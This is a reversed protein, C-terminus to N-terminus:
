QVQEVTAFYPAPNTDDKILSELQGKFNISFRVKGKLDTSLNDNSNQILHDLTGCWNTGWDQNLRFKFSGGKCADTVGTWTQLNVANHFDDVYTASTKDTPLGAPTLILDNEKNWGGLADGIASISTVKALKVTGSTHDSNLIVTIFYTGPDTTIHAPDGVTTLQDPDGGLNGTWNPNPCFKFHCKETPNECDVLYVYGSYVDSNEATEWLVPAKAPAWGQHSGPVYLPRRIWKAATSKVTTLNLEIVNSKLMYTSDTQSISSILYFQVKSTAEEPVSLKKKDVVLNNLAEKSLSLSTSYSDGLQITKEGYSCYLSYTVAAQYGYDVPTWSFTVDNKLNDADVYIDSHAAMVSPTIGSAQVAEIKEVEQCGLAALLVTFMLFIKKMKNKM